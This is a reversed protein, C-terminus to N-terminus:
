PGVGAAARDAEIHYQMVGAIRVARRKADDAHPGTFLADVSEHFLAIWRDFERATLPTRRALARHAALPDGTFGPVGFLVAEWFAYMRPLHARWDVRAIVDFIPGLREDARVRDYFTDVLREVDARSTLDTM